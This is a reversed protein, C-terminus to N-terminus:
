NVFNQQKDQGQILSVLVYPGILHPVVRAPKRQHEDFIGHKIEHHSHRLEKRNKRSVGFQCGSGVLTKAANRDLSSTHVM